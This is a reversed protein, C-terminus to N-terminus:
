IAIDRLKKKEKGGGKKKTKQRKKKKKTKEVKILFYSFCKFISKM